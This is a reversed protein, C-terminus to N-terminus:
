AAIRDLVMGTPPVRAAVPMVTMMVRLRRLGHRTPLQTAQDASKRPQRLAVGTTIRFLLLTASDRRCAPDTKNRQHSGCVNTAAPSGCSAPTFSIRQFLWPLDTM